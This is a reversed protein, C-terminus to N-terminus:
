GIAGKSDKTGKAELRRALTEVLGWQGAESARQIAKALAVEVPDGEAEPAGLPSAVPETAPEGRTSTSRGGDLGAMEGLAQGLHGFPSPQVKMEGDGTAMPVNSTGLSEHGIPEDRIVAFRSDDAM